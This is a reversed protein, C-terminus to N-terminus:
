LELLTSKIALFPQQLFVLQNQKKRTRPYNNKMTSAYNILGQVKTSLHVLVREVFFLYELRVKEIVKINGRRGMSKLRSDLIM